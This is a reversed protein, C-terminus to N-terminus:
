ESSDELLSFSCAAISAPLNNTKWIRSFVSSLVPSISDQLFPPVKVRLVVVSSRMSSTKSHIGVTTITSSFSTSFFGLFLYSFDSLSNIFSAILSTRM